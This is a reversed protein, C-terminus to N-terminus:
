RYGRPAPLVGGTRPIANSHLVACYPAVADSSPTEACAIFDLDLPHLPLADHVVDRFLDTLVTERCLHHCLILEVRGLLARRGNGRAPEAMAKAKARATSTRSSLEAAACGSHLAPRERVVIRVLPQGLVLKRVLLLKGFFGGGIGLIQPVCSRVGCAGPRLVEVSRSACRCRGTSRRRRKPTLPRNRDLPIPSPNGGRLPKRVPVRESAPKRFSGLLECM